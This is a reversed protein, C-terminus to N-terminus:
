HTSAPALKPRRGRMRERYLSYAGSGIVIASGVLTTADPVDGFIAFGLVIAFLLITYRFPAVFGMDGSRMAEVICIYGLALMVSAVAFILLDASRVPSWGWFPVLLFGALMVSASTVASVAFSPIDAPMRRTALDRAASCLVSALILLSFVSFGETGPRVIVVVGVFGISIATWRRWGVPEALFLAAGLTVVLPLAQFIASANAIPMYRLAAVYTITALIDAVTRFALVPQVLRHPQRLAGRIGALAVLLVTAMVGRLAMIQPAPVDAIALKTCADNVAFAAMAGIM